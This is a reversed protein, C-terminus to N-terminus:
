EDLLKSVDVLLLSFKNYKTGIKPCTLPPPTLTDSFMPNIRYTGHTKRIYLRNLPM